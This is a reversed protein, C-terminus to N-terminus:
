TSKRSHARIAFADLMAQERRQERYRERDQERKLLMELQRVNRRAELLAEQRRKVSQQEKEVAQSLRKAAMDLRFLYEYARRMEDASSSRHESIVREEDDRAQEVAAKREEARRLQELAGELASM